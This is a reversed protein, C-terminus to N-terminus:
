GARAPGGPIEVPTAGVAEVVEQEEVEEVNDDHLGDCLVRFNGTM